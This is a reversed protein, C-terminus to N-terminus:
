HIETRTPERTLCKLMIFTLISNALFWALYGYVSLSDKDMLINKM